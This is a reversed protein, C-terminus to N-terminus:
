KVKDWNFYQISKVKGRVAIAGVYENTPSFSFLSWKNKEASNWKTQLLKAKKNEDMSVSFADLPFSLGSGEAKIFAEKRTWCHYFAQYVDDQQVDHLMKVETTSFFNEALNLVDFDTKIKEVDIGIESDKVFALVVLKGSHSVNFKLDTPFNYDPKGYTGYKFEIASATHGLYLSSLTRLASRAMINLTRDKEFKFKKSRSIEELSLLRRYIEIEKSFDDVNFYWVHVENGPLEM